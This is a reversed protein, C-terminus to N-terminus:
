NKVLGLESGHEAIYADVVRQISSQTEEIDGKAYPILKVREPERAAIALYGDRVRAFYDPGKSEIRDTERRRQAFLNPDGDILFTLDPKRGNCSFNTLMDIIELNAGGGYGQYAYTSDRWRDGLVIGGSALMPKTIRRYWDIGAAIFLMVEADSLLNGVSPDLLISRVREGMPTSGPERGSVVHYGAGSLHQNLQRAQTSKGCGDLGEFTIFLGKKEDM